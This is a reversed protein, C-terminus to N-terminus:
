VGGTVIQYAAEFVPLAQQPVVANGLGRTRHARTANDPALRPPEHPNQPQWSGAPFCHLSVDVSASLGHPERGLRSQSRFGNHRKWRRASRSQRAAAVAGRQQAFQSAGCAGVPPSGSEHAPPSQRRIGNAYGLLLWRTRHQPSGVVSAPYTFWAMDYGLTALTATAEIGGRVTIAPVNELIILKPRVDSIIRALEFFLGSRSGRLGQGGGAISIDQCPFGGFILDVGAPIDNATVNRIDGLNTAHPFRHALVRSAYPDIESVTVVKFGATQAALDLGGFGTFFSAALIM